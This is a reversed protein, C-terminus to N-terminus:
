RWRCAPLPETKMTRRGSISKHIAACNEYFEEILKDAIRNSPDDARLVCLAVYKCLESDYEPASPIPEEASLEGSFVSYYYVQYDGPEFFSVGREDTEYGTYRQKNRYVKYIGRNKPLPYFEEAETCSIHVCKVPCISPYRAILLRLGEQLYIKALARDVQKGILVSAINAAEQLTM